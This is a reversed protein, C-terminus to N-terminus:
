INGPSENLLTKITKLLNYIDYPKQIFIYSGIDFESARVRIDTYGSTMLIKIAPNIAYFDEVLKYGYRDPLIADCFVLAFNGANERFIREADRACQASEVQYKNRQLVDCVLKNVFEEDEIVLVREGFGALAESKQVETVEQDTAKSITPFYIKFITGYGPESYINIFGNHQKVISFVVALGMGTGKGAEKTTFFPEFIKSQIEASMGPGTDEIMLCVWSEKPAEEIVMKSPSNVKSLVTRLIINGGEPMVDKANICLNMLVQELQGRDANIDVCDQSLDLIFHINEPILRSLMKQAGVVVQNLNLNQLDVKEKRSFLLLQQTLGTAREVASNIQNLSSRLKSDPEVQMTCLQMHGSIITLLNNFDHAVGSALEGIAEMKQASILENELEKERAIDQIRGRFGSIQGAADKTADANILVDIKKGSRTKLTAPFDQLYGEKRIVSIFKDREAPDDYLAHFIDLNTMDERSAYGFLTVGAPNIDIFHGEIDTIYIADRSEEFLARFKRESDIISKENKRLETIDHLQVLIAKEGQWEIDDIYMEVVGNERNNRIVDIESKSESTIPLGFPEGTLDAQGFFTHAAPNAFLVVRNQDMVMIPDVDKNFITRLNKINNEIISVNHIHETIEIGQAITSICTEHDDAYINASNWLLIKVEGNKCQIPLETLTLIERIQDSIGAQRDEPFLLQIERGILEAARYGTLREFAPSFERIRFDRDWVIIPVNSHKFLALQYKLAEKLQNVLKRSIRIDGSSDMPVDTLLNLEAREFISRFLATNKTNSM